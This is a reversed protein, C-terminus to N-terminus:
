ISSRAQHDAEIQAMEIAYALMDLGAARARRALAALEDRIAAAEAKRERPGVPM